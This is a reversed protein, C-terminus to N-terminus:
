AGSGAGQRAPEPKDQPQPKPAVGHALGGHPGEADADAAAAALEAEVDVDASLIGRRKIETLLTARSLDGSQRMGVLLQASAEALTAAGFDNYVSVNGGEAEGMWRAALQLAQDLADELGAVARNLASMSVTNDSAVETATILGPRLVLLEAGAQRM